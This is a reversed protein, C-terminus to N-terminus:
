DSHLVETGDELDASALLTALEGIKQAANDLKVALKETNAEYREVVANRSERLSALEAEIGNIQRKAETLEDVVMIAAMVTLRQDGIEGFSSKLTGVYTEFKEALGTLRQQEGEDCAMRYIKGNISVSVQPM